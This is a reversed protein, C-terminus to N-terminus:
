KVIRDIEESMDVNWELGGVGIFPCFFLWLPYLSHWALGLSFICCFLFREFTFSIKYILWDEKGKGTEHM